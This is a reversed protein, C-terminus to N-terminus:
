RFELLIHYNGLILPGWYLDWFVIPRIILVGLFPVGLRLFSGHLSLVLRESERQCQATTEETTEKPTIKM